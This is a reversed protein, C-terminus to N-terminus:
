RPTFVLRSNNNWVRDVIICRSNRVPARGRLVLTGNQRFSGTVEYSAPGCDASFVYATGYVDGSAPYSGKVIIDGRSVPLGRRPRIYRIDFWEDIEDWRMEVLSGNHWYRERHNAASPATLGIFIVTCLVLVRLM